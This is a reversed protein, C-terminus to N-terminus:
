FNRTVGLFVTNTEKAAIPTNNMLFTYRYGFEILANKVKYSFGLGLFATNYTTRYKEVDNYQYFSGFIYHVSALLNLKSSAPYFYYQVFPGVWRSLYISPELSDKEYVIQYGANSELGLVLREKYNVGIRPCVKLLGGGVTGGAIGAGYNVGIHLGFPNLTDSKSKQCHVFTVNSLIIFLFLLTNKM